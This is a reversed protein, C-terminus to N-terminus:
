LSLLKRLYARGLWAFDCYEMAVRERYDALATEDRALLVSGQLVAHQFGLTAADLM